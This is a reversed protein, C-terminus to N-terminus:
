TLDRSPSRDTEGRKTGSAIELAEFLVAMEGIHNALLLVLKADLKRSATADLRRHAETLAAYFGDPDAIRPDTRLHKM